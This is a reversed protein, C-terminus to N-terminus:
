EGEPQDAKRTKKGRPPLGYEEVYRDYNDIQAAYRKAMKKLSAVQKFSLEKRTQFQSLLSDYFKKDDWERKGRMVPPKWEKVQHFLELVPGTHESHPERTEDLKLEASLAAFGEIQDSYKIVLKDLYRLQNESLRKGSEVQQRLSESFAKDDYTRKGVKRPENFKVTKLLDLKRPTEERPPEPPRKAEELVASLELAEAHQELDPIQEHYRCVVQQLAKLQRDSIPKEGKDLQEGISKVFKEDSYTRKGRKVEPAWEKVEEALVLLRQVFEPNADPGRAKELWAEFRNYFEQLMGHWEISGNEIADLSEEMGATFKVDFLDGLHTVLFENVKAGIETPRLSRKEKEVYNRDQLTSLIQAYTSPRGVGNEELARVLSSETYRGPPQTFKQESLWELLNVKEGQELPPLKDVAEDIPTGNEENNGNAPAKPKKPQDAGTVKMYGPFVIESATARFLYTNKQDGQPAAEFEATKQAIKAPAMQSAVFREWIIRYLKLEEPKLVSTLSDPTRAVETPRIAEHAEQAGGRSKYINPKGPVYENGYHQAIYSRCEAQAQKSIAVSDTRMYTILGVPGEGFDTGEYLGQAIRMTRSPSFSFFRSGAQQLTSTIYPPQARRTLERQVIASVHLERSELDHLVQQAQESSKIEPKDDNIKALKITFPDVPEVRKCVRAGLLWYEEAVFNHILEERECVLRLAVSQVRGASSGGRIRRWLLPSVKYGVIRDLVRRAQQSDVRNQDIRGPNEFAERLAPATIENYTVRFFSDDPVSNKLEALLHWAIAEGERDPDPALYIADAKKAAEKLEKLISEKGKIRVYQPKFGDEVDVGLKKQPLDRVHGMCAKVVYDGGLIKNITKAKAPSEVIVLNKSM